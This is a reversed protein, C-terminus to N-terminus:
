VFGSAGIGQLYASRGYDPLGPLFPGSLPFLQAHIHYQSGIELPPGQRISLRVLGIQHLAAPPDSLRALFRAGGEGRYETDIITALFRERVPESLVSHGQRMIQFHSLCVGLLLMVMASLIFHFGGGHLRFRVWGALLIDLLSLMIIQPLSLMNPLLDSIIIGVMLWLCAAVMSFQTLFKLKKYARKENQM